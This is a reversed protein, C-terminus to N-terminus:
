QGPLDADTSVDLRAAARTLEAVSELAMKRMVNARHAKVTRETAGLEAAIQKNLMGRAVLGLVQRERPTLTNYRDRLRRLEDREARGTEDIAIARRVADILVQGAVPKTLFDVAGGKMARVASRVDGHGTLFVIPRLDGREAMARQIDLGGAGPMHLDVVVCGPSDYTALFAEAGDYTEVRFGAARLLVTLSRLLAPDDDVLRVVPQQVDSIM